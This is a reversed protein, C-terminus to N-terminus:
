TRLRNRTRRITTTEGCTATESARPPIPRAPVLHKELPPATPKSPERRPPAGKEARRDRTLLVLASMTRAAIPKPQQCPARSRAEPMLGYLPSACTQANRTKSPAVNKAPPPETKRLTRARRWVTAQMRIPRQRPTSGTTSRSEQPFPRLQAPNQRGLQPLRTRPM